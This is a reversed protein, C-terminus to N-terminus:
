INLDCYLCRILTFPISILGESMRLLQDITVDDNNANEALRIENEEVESIGYQYPLM